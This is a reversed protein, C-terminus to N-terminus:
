RGAGAMRSASAPKAIVRPPNSALRTLRCLPMRHNAPQAFVTPAFFLVCTALATTV